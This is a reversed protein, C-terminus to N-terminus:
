MGAPPMSPAGRAKGGPKLAVVVPNPSHEHGQGSMEPGLAGGIGGGLVNLAMITKGREGYGTTVSVEAPKFGSKAITATFAEKRPVEIGCPTAACGLGNSNRHCHM